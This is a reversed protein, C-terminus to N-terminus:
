PAPGIVKFGPPLQLGAPAQAPQGPLPAEGGPLDEFRTMDYGASGLNKKLKNYASVSARHQQSLRRKIEAPAMGPVITADDFAKKEPATLASGFLEHRINNTQEQYNQWWNSQDAYKTIGFRGLTNQTGALVPTGAYDDKFTSALDAMAGATGEKKTLKEVNSAPLVKGAPATAAKADIRAQSRDNAGQQALTAITLRLQRNRENEQQQIELRREMAERTAETKAAATDKVAQRTAAREEEYIPSAVFDGTAPLAFGQAGLSIPKHQAQASKAALATANAAGENNAMATIAALTNFRNAQQNAEQLKNAKKPRRLAEAAARQQGLPDQAFESLDFELAM